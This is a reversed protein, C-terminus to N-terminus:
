SLGLATKFGAEIGPLLDPRHALNQMSGEAVGYHALMQKVYDDTLRGTPNTASHTNSVIFQVFNTFALEDASPAKPLAPVPPLTAAAPTPLAPPFAPAFPVPSDMTSRLEAEVKTKLAPPVNRKARWSGDATFAKSSSHIRDDWPFGNADITNSSATAINVAEHAAALGSSVPIPGSPAVIEAAQQPTISDADDNRLASESFWDSQQRGTADVYRVLYGDEAKDYEARGIIIGKEGSLALAIAAGLLHTFQKTHNM